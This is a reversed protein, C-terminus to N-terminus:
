VYEDFNDLDKQQIKKKNSNEEKEKLDDIYTDDHKVIYVVDNFLKLKYEPFCKIFKEHRYSKGPEYNIATAFYTIIYEDFDYHDSLESCTDYKKNDILMILMNNDVYVDYHECIHAIM